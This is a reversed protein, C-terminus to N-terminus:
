NCENTVFTEMEGGARLDNLSGKLIGADDEIFEVYDPIIVGYKTAITVAEAITRKKRGANKKWIVNPRLGAIGFVRRERSAVRTIM